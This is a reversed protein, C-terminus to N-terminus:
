TVSLTLYVAVQTPIKPIFYHSCVMVHVCVQVSWTAWAECQFRLGVVFHWLQHLLLYWHSAWCLQPLLPTRARPHSGAAMHAENSTHVLFYVALTGHLVLNSPAKNSCMASLPAVAVTYLCLVCIHGALLVLTKIFLLIACWQHWM